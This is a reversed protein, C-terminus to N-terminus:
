YVLVEHLMDLSKLDIFSNSSLISFFKSQRSVLSAAPIFLFGALNKFSIASNNTTGKFMSILKEILSHNEGSCHKITLYIETKIFAEFM